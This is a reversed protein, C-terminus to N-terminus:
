ELQSQETTRIVEANSQLLLHYTYFISSITGLGHLKKGM